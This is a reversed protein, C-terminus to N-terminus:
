DVPLVEVQEPVDPDVFDDLPAGPASTSTPPTSFTSPFAVEDLLYGSTGPCVSEDFDARDSLVFKKTQPFSGVKSNLLIVLLSPSRWTHHSDLGRIRRFTFM